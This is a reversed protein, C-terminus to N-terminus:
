SLVIAAALRGYDTEGRHTTRRYSYFRAADAYTDLGLDGVAALGARELRAVVYGALDFHPKGAPGDAFFRRSEPDAATFTRMFEDGVEYSPQRICPGLVAVTRDARAGLKQMASLASELIGGLAGKWGAHAAGVVRAEADALLVPCCDAVLAAVALGPTVTVIADARPPEPFPETAVVTDASHIQYCSLLATGGLAAAMRQRNEAVADRDDASGLGANLSAYIGTSVGGARTFFAHRIGPLASLLDSRLIPVSAVNAALQM